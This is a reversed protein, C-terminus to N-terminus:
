WWPRLDLIQSLPAQDIAIPARAPSQNERLLSLINYSVKYLSYACVVAVAVLWLSGGTLFLNIALACFISGAIACLCGITNLRSPRPPPANNGAGQRPPIVAANRQGPPVYGPGYQINSDDFLRIGHGVSHPPIVGPGYEVNFSGNIRQRRAAVQGLCLMLYSAPCDIKYDSSNLYQYDPRHTKLEEFVVDLVFHYVTSMWPANNNGSFLQNLDTSNVLFRERFSQVAFKLPASLDATQESRQLISLLANEYEDVSQTNAKIAALTECVPHILLARNVEDLRSQIDHMSIVVPVHRDNLWQRLMAQAEARSAEDKAEVADRISAEEALNQQRNQYQQKLSDIINLTSTHLIQHDLLPQARMQLRPDAVIQEASFAAQVGLEPQKAYDNDVLSWYRGYRLYQESLRNFDFRCLTTHTCVLCYLSSEEASVDVVLLKKTQEANLPVFEHDAPMNLTNTPAVKIQIQHHESDQEIDCWHLESWQGPTSARFRVLVRQYRYVAM